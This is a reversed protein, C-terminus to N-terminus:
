VVLRNFCVLLVDLAHQRLQLVQRILLRFLEESISFTSVPLQPSSIFSGDVFTPSAAVYLDATSQGDLVPNNMGFWLGQFSSGVPAAHLADSLWHLLNSADAEFDIARMATWDAHPHQRECEDVVRLVREAFPARASVAPVICDFLAEYDYSM